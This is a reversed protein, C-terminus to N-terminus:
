LGTKDDQKQQSASSPVDDLHGTWDGGLTRYLAVRNIILNANESVLKRALNQNSTWAALYSLYDSQGNIYQLRANKLSMETAQKQETLRLIYKQQQTEAALSNEVEKMANAVTKAYDTLRGEAIARTRDVEASRKGGDFIPGTIGAALTNVWNDFLLDLKGSSFASRASLTIDPLRDARSASVTWDASKLRLGAARVDPRAAILDAPLGTKPLYIVEPLEAQAISFGNLSTKGLLFALSNLLQREALELLPLESKVSALAQRQQSVDLAKVRGNVFRFEQLELLTTNTQIQDVVIAIQQRTALLNLWTEIITASITVKAAEFDERSAQFAFEEAQRQARLRGWLDVEYAASLGASWNEVDTNIRKSNASTRANIWQKEARADYNLTPWRNANTKDLASEAQKLRQWASQIDFNNALAENVLQNLEQSGFSEWWKNSPTKGETYLSYEEPLEVPSREREQPPFLTCANIALISIVTLVIRIM